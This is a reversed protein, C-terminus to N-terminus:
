NTLAIKSGYPGVGPPVPVDTASYDTNLVLTPGACLHLQAVVLVTYASYAAIPKSADVLIQGKPMYITGTLNQANNSYIQHQRPPAKYQAKKAMSNCFLGSALPTAPAAAGSPDDYVLIGALPGSKPASLSITSDTDFALNSKAGSLYIGVYSGKLSAGKDVVLPGNTIVYTGPAMTVTSGNTVRLGGCYTGPQLMQTMGDIVTNTYNCSGVSPAVRSQLPDPVAPCGTLPQPKFNTSAFKLAGGTACILGANLVASNRSDMAFKNASNSQVLCGPANMVASDQLSITEASSPDLALACLPLTGNLKATASVSLNVGGKVLLGGTIPTYNKQIAVKVTAANLDVTVNTTVEQLAGTVYSKAVAAVRSQDTRALMLERVSATAASDAVSQMKSRTAAASGYDVAAAVAAALAPVALAFTVAVNASTDRLFGGSQSRGVCAGIPVHDNRSTMQM